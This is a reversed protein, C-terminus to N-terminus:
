FPNTLFPINFPQDDEGPPNVSIDAITLILHAWGKGKPDVSWSMSTPASANKYSMKSLINQRNATVPSSQGPGPNAWGANRVALSDIVMSPGPPAVNNSVFTTSHPDMSTVAGPPIQAAQQFTFAGVTKGTGPGSVSLTYNGGSTPLESELLYFGSILIDSGMQTLAVSGALNFPIGNYTVVPPTTNNKQNVLVVLLRDQGPTGASYNLNINHSGNTGASNFSVLSVM